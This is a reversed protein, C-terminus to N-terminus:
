QDLLFDVANPYNQDTPGGEAYAAQTLPVPNGPRQKPIGLAIPIDSRGNAKLFRSLLRARLHTDGFASSIGLIQLEPSHLALGVAFADDIDDGIDTDIIIKEAENSHTASVPASTKARLSSMLLCTAFIGAFLRM